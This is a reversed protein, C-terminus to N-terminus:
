GKYGYRNVQNFVKIEAEIIELGIQAELIDIKGSLWFNEQTEAYDRLLNLTDKM